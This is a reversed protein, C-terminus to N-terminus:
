LLHSGSLIETKRTATILENNVLIEVGSIVDASSLDIEGSVELRSFMLNLAPNGSRAALITLQETETFLDFFQLPTIVPAEYPNNGWSGGEWLQRADDPPYQVEVAGEPPEVGAFGGLYVGNNDVYYKTNVGM